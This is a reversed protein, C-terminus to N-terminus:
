TSRMSRPAVGCSRGTWDDVLELQHDVELGGFREAELNWVFQEREGVLHDFSTFGFPPNLIFSGRREPPRGLRPKEIRRVRPKLLWVEDSAASSITPRKRLM